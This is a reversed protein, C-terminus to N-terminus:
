EAKPPEDYVQINFGFVGIGSQEFAECVESFMIRGKDNFSGAFIKKPSMKMADEFLYMLVKSEFTKVFDDQNDLATELTSKSVFFPGLLKDENVKCEDSALKDNIANRLENWYVYKRNASNGVPIVYKEVKERNANIGIYEFDWRRKFATDMPFVGQDASNMTAWIFMNDPIKITKVEREDVDLERALYARMDQSTSIAYESVGKSDRDLLQFIDGFVAAPNARNIEEVILLYPKPNDTMASKLAKVLVRMFPGPVYEYAIEKKNNEDVASLNLYQRIARGHNREVSNDNAAETGDVKRTKFDDDTYVGLLIPLRTLGDDKFDDYLLDYKEQATKSKDQLISIVRKKEEDLVFENRTKVMVPKYTGVFNAYSYDPRFTVREYDEENEVGILKEAEDNLTYSKGTGPAGFIIRNRSKDSNYGTYFRIREKIEVPADEKIKSLNKDIYKLLHYGNSTLVYTDLGDYKHSVQILNLNKLETLVRYNANPTYTDDDPTKGRGSFGYIEKVMERYMRRKEADIVINKFKEDSDPFSMIKGNLAGERLTCIITNFYMTFDQLKHIEYLKELIYEGILGNSEVFEIFRNTLQYNFEGVVDLFGFERMTRINTNTTDSRKEAECILLVDKENLNRKETSLYYEVFRKVAAEVDRTISKCPRLKDDELLEARYESYLKDIFDFKLKNM